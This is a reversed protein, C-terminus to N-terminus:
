GQVSPMAGTRPAESPQVIVLGQGEFGLQMAEGSGRGIAAKWTASRKPRIKLGTSWGVLADPDVYTPAESTQLVVPTGKSTIAVWGNGGIVVNFLGGGSLFSVGEVRKIDWQMGADFALVNKGNVSIGEGQLQMVVVDAGYDALFLDGQGTCQMLPVGEGTAWSKAMSKLAPFNPNFDILGEYAIMSGARALLDQGPGMVVRVIKSGQKSMRAPTEVETYKTLLDGIM